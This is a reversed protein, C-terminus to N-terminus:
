YEDQLKLLHNITLVINSDDIKLKDYFLTSYDKLKKKLKLNNHCLTGIAILIKLIVNLDNEKELFNLLLILIKSKLDDFSYDFSKCLKTSYNSLLISYTLRINLNKSDRSNITSKLIDDVNQFLFSDLNSNFINCFYRLSLMRLTDNENNLLGIKFILNSIDDNFFFESNNLILIRMLDIVPFIFSKPWKLLKNLILNVEEQQLKKKLKLKEIMKTLIKLDSDNLKFEGIENETENLSKLKKLIGDFNGSDIRIYFSPFLLHPNLDPENSVQNEHADQASYRGEIELDDDEDMGYNRLEFPVNKVIFDSIEEVHYSPLDNTSLFDKACQFPDDGFNYGLFYKQNDSLEVPFVRDYEIGNIVNSDENEDSPKDVIYGMHNWKKGDWSHVEGVGNNNIMITQGDKGELTLAELGPLKSVDVSTESDKKFKEIEDHVKKIDETSAIRKEDRTFVKITGDTCAVAIDNNSLEVVEWVSKPFRIVQVEKFDKWIKITNDESATLIEGTSLVCVNYILTKHAKHLAVLEGDASWLRLAGDNAVSCFGLGPYEALSRVPGKHGKCKKLLNGNKDFIRIFTDSCGTVYNGNQLSLCCLVLSKHKPLTIKCWGDKWIKGLKDTSGAIIEDNHGFKITNVPGLGKLEDLISGDKMNWVIINRIEENSCSILTDNKQNYRVNIVDGKHGIFTMADEYKVHGDVNKPIWLKVLNDLSCSFFAGDKYPEVGRVQNVHGSIVSSLQFMRSVFM